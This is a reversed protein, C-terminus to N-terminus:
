CYLKSDLFRLNVSGLPAWVYRYVQEYVNFKTAMHGHVPWDLCNVHTICVYVPSSSNIVRQM